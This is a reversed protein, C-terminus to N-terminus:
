LEFGTCFWALIIGEKESSSLGCGVEMSGVYDPSSLMESSESVTACVCLAYVLLAPAHCYDAGPKM